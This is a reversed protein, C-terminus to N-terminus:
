QIRPLDTVHIGRDDEQMPKHLNCGTIQRRWVAHQLRSKSGELRAKLESEGTTQRPMSKRAVPQASTADSM